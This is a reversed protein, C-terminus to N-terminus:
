SGASLASLAADLADAAETDSDDDAAGGAEGGFLAQGPFLRAYAQQAQKVAGAAGVFSHPPQCVAVNAPLESTAAHEGAQLWFARLLVEPQGGALAGGANGAAALLEQVAPELAQRPSCGLSPTSLHVVFRRLRVQQTACWRVAGLGTGAAKHCAPLCQTAM